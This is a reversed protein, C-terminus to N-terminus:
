AQSFWVTATKGRVGRRVHCLRMSCGITRAMKHLVQLSYRLADDPLGTPIGDDSVGIEYVAKLATSSSSLLLFLLHLNALSDLTAMYSLLASQVEGM